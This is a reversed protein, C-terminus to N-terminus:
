MGPGWEIDSDPTALEPDLPVGFERIWYTNKIQEMFPLIEATECGVGELYPFSSTIFEVYVPYADRAIGVIDHVVGPDDEVMTRLSAQAFNYHGIEQPFLVTDYFRFYREDRIVATAIAKSWPYGYIGDMTVAFGVLFHLWDADAIAMMKDRVVSLGPLAEPLQGGHEEILRAMYTHHSYEERMQRLMQSRAERNPAHRLGTAVGNCVVEDALCHWSLYEVLKETELKSLTAQV